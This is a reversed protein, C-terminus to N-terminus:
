AHASDEAVVRDRGAGKARYLAADAREVVAAAPEGARHQAVGLSVTVMGIERGSDRLSYTQERVAIRIREAIEKASMLPVSDLLVVFEEGGFRAAMEKERLGTLVSQAVRRLVADGIPHGFRDNISKFRDIDLMVLSFCAGKATGDTAARLRADFARRNALGTLADTSAERRAESLERRLADMQGASISLEGGLTAYRHSMEATQGAFAALTAAGDQPSTLLDSSVKSLSSAYTTTEAGADAIKGGVAALTDQMRGSAALFQPLDTDHQYFRQHLERMVRGDIARGNSLIVDIVRRVMPQDGSHYDYWVAFNQPTPAIFFRLMASIAAHAHGVAKSDTETTPSAAQGTAAAPNENRM